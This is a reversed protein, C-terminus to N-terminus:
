SSPRDVALILRIEEHGARKPLSVQAEREYGTRDLKKGSDRLSPPGVEMLDIHLGTM